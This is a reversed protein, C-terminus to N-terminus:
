SARWGPIEADGPGGWHTIRGTALVEASSIGWTHGPGAGRRQVFGFRSASYMRAGAASARKLFGTDEGITTDPFGVERALETAAVLTPGSLFATYRHEWEPFRLVVADQDELHVFHAHKGVVEARAYDAAALSEFLYYDGYLDDDDLKAIFDADVRALMRNYNAGLTTEEEGTVWDVELGLERARARAADPAEFGHTLIIPRQEVEQQRALTYLVADLREPRITSVLPAITPRQYTREGMGVAELVQDVRATYTHRLWIERQALYTMRERLEPNNVLARQVWYAEKRDGVVALTGAPLFRGTAPSPMTVVPTGCATIEFIRRAFMSPSNVVSNVNLFAKYGRYASLMEPYSLSGRVFADLPAPFQYNADAGLYRSFIDLGHELKPAADVAAGLLTEMQERREPYKHAFYMGAFAIDRLPVPRGDDDCLRIPNHITPQAAFPLVGIRNHGLETRYRDLLTADTTFVWDFLRATAIAEDYHAPDEKNWFVTPIGAARAQAVLERLHASPGNKGIVQYRWADGNGHWASEVFLLDIPDAAIQERWDAPTLAVAHWEYQLALTTFEDAIVGVTLEHRPEAAEPAPVDWEPFTGQGKRSRRGRTPRAWASARRRRRFEKVGAIGGHRAHWLTKRATRILDSM